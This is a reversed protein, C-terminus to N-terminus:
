FIITVMFATIEIIIVWKLIKFLIYTATRFVFKFISYATIISAFSLVEKVDISHLLYISASVVLIIVIRYLTIRM